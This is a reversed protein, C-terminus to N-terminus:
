AHIVELEITLYKIDESRVHTVIFLTLVHYVHWFQKLFVDVPEWASLYLLFQRTLAQRNKYTMYTMNQVDLVSRGIIVKLTSGYILIHENGLKLVLREICHCLTLLDIESRNDSM